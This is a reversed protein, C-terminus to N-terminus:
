HHLPFLLLWRGHEPQAKGTGARGQKWSPQQLKLFSKTFRRGGTALSFYSHRM